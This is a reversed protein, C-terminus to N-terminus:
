NRQQALGASEARACRCTDRLTRQVKIGVPVAWIHRVDRQATIFWCSLIFSFLLNCKDCVDRGVLPISEGTWPVRQFCM